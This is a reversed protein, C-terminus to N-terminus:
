QRYDDANVGQKKLLKHLGQRSMGAQQASRAVNGSNERLLAILYDREATAIAETRSGPPM